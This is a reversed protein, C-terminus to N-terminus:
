ASPEGAASLDLDGIRRIEKEVDKLVRDSGETPDSLRALAGDIHGRAESFATMARARVEGADAILANVWRRQQELTALM